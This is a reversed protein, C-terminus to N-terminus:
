RHREELEALYSAAAAANHRRWLEVPDDPESPPEELASLTPELAAKQARILSGPSRGAREILTLRLLFGIRLDRIHTVPEALWDDLRGRGAATVRLIVRDPGADGRETAVPEVYGLEVLRDLARYVLPRRVTYVRGVGSDPGLEKALAFGHAPEEALVGLVACETVSLRPATM